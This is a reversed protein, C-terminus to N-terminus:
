PGGGGPARPVAEGLGSLRERATAAAATRAFEPAAAAQLHLLEGASNGVTHYFDAIALHRQARWSLLRELAAAAEAVFTPNEPPRELFVRLEKTASEM